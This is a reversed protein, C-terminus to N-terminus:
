YIEVNLLGYKIIDFRRIFGRLNIKAGSVTEKVYVAAGSIM